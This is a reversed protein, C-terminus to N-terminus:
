ARPSVALHRAMDELANAFEAPRLAPLGLCKKGADVAPLWFCSSEVPFCLYVTVALGALVGLLAVGTGDPLRMDSLVVDVRTKSLLERAVRLNGAFYCRFGFGRLRSTLGNPTQFSQGVLLVDRGPLTM